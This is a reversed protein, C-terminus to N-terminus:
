PVDVLHGSITFRFLAPGTTINRIGSLIVIDGAEAYLRVQQGLTASGQGSFAVAPQTTPFRHVVLEGGVTTQVELQAVQGVNINADMSAFEIILRKGQPVTYINAQCGVVNDASCTKGAQVPQRAPSDADRVNPTNVVNVDSAPKAGQAYGAGPAFVFLFFGFAFLINNIKTM